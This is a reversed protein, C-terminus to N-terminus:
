ATGWKKRVLSPWASRLVDEVGDRQRAREAEVLAAVYGIVKSIRPNMSLASLAEALERKDDETLEDFPIM